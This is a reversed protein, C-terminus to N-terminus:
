IINVSNLLCVQEQNLQISNKVINVFRELDSVLEKTKLAVDWREDSSDISLNIRDSRSYHYNEEAFQKHLNTKATEQFKTRHSILNDQKAEHSAVEIQDFDEDVLSKLSASSPLKRATEHILDSIKLSRNPINVKVDNIPSSRLSAIESILTETQSDILQITSEIQAISSISSDKLKENEHISAEVQEISSDKLKDIEHNICNSEKTDYLIKEPSKKLMYKYESPPEYDNDEKNDKLTKLMESVSLFSRSGSHALNLGNLIPNTAIYIRSAFRLSFLSANYHDFTPNITTLLVSHGKLSLADQLYHTLRSNRHPIFSNKGRGISSFCTTLADFVNEQYSNCKSSKFENDLSKSYDANKFDRNKKFINSIHEPQTLKSNKTYSFLPDHHYEAAATPIQSSLEVFHLRSFAIYKNKKKKNSYNNISEHKKDVCITFVSHSGKKRSTVTTYIHLLTYVDKMNEVTVYISKTEKTRKSHIVMTNLDPDEVVTVLSSLNNLESIM